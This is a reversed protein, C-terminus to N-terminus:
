ICRRLLVEVCLYGDILLLHEDQEIVIAPVQQGIEAV